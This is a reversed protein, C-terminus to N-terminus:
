NLQMAILAGSVVVLVAAGALAHGVHELRSRGKQIERVLVTAVMLFGALLMACAVLSGAFRSPGLDSAVAALALVEAIVLFAIVWSRTVRDVVTENDQLREEVVMALFLVPILQASVEFFTPSFYMGM